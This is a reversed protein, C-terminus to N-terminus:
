KPYKYSITINDATETLVQPVSISVSYNSQEVFTFECENAASSGYSSRIFIFPQTFRAASSFRSRGFLDQLHGDTKHWNNKQDHSVLAKQSKLGIVMDGSLTESYISRGSKNNFNVTIRSLYDRPLAGDAAINGRQMGTNEYVKDILSKCLKTRSRNFTYRTIPVHLQIGGQVMQKDFFSIGPPNFGFAYHHTNDFRDMERRPSGKISGVNIVTSLKSQMSKSADDYSYTKDAVEELGKYLNDLFKNKLNFAVNLRLVVEDTSTKIKQLIQADDEVVIDDSVKVELAKGSLVPLIYKDFVVDSVDATKGANSKDIKLQALASFSIFLMSLLLFYGKLSVMFKGMLILLSIYDYYM